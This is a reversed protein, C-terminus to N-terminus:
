PFRDEKEAKQEVQESAQWVPQGVRILRVRNPSHDNGRISRYHWRERDDDAVDGVLGFKDLALAELVSLEGDVAQRAVLVLKHNGRGGIDRCSDLEIELGFCLRKFM